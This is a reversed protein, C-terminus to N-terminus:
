KVILYTPCGDETLYTIKLDNKVCFENVATVVGPFKKECYDHGMIYGDKKVKLFSLELDKKVAEYSHDADIYVGDLYENELSNLFSITDTKKIAVSNDNYYKKILKDYSDNLNIFTFNEGDKDGSGMTGEFIDVLYIKKTKAISKIQESFEGNFVGLEALILNKPLIELIDSRTKLIKM